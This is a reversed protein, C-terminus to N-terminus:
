QPDPQQQTGVESSSRSSRRQRCLCTSRRMIKPLFLEGRAIIYSVSHLTPTGIDNASPEGEVGRKEETRDHGNNSTGRWIPDDQSEEDGHCRKTGSTIKHEISRNEEFIKRTVLLVEHSSKSTLGTGSAM